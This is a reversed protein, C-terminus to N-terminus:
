RLPAAISWDYRLLHHEKPSNYASRLQESDMLTFRPTAFWLGDAGAPGRYRMWKRAERKEKCYTPGDNEVAQFNMVIYARRRRILPDRILAQM